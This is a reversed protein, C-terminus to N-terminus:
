GGRALVVLVGVVVALAIAGAIAAAVRVRRSVGSASGWFIPVPGILVVGGSASGEVVARDSRAEETAVVAFPLTVVGAAFLGVGAAFLLSGGYVVPFVVVIAARAGGTAVAVAIAAAGGAILTPPVWRVGRM